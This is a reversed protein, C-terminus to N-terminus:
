LRSNLAKLRKIMRQLSDSNKAAVAVDWIDIFPKIGSNYEPGKCSKGQAAISKKIEDSTSQPAIKHTLYFSSKVGYDTEVLANRGGRKNMQPTPILSVDVHMFAAFNKRDAMLWTEAEDYAINIIFDNNKEIGKLLDNKAAPACKDDADALLIVPAHASLNNLEKIKAKLESGRSPMQKIVSAKPAYDRLLRQIVRQTVEDEFAIYVNGM